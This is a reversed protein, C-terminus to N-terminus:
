QYMAMYIRPSVCLKILPPQIERCTRSMREVRETLGLEGELALCASRVEVVRDMLELNLDIHASLDNRQDAADARNKQIALVYGNMTKGFLRQVFACHRAFTM